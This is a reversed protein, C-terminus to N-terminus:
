TCSNICCLRARVIIYVWLIVLRAIFRVRCLLSRRLVRLMGPVRSGRLVADDCHCVPREDQQVGQHLVHLLPLGRPQQLLRSGQWTDAAEWATKHGWIRHCSKGQYRGQWWIRTTVWSSPIAAWRARETRKTEAEGIWACLVYLKNVHIM